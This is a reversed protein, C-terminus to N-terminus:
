RSKKMTLLQDLLRSLNIQSNAISNITMYNPNFHDLKWENYDLWLRCMQIRARLSLGTYPYDCCLPDSYSQSDRVIIQKSELGILYNHFSYFQQVMEQHQDLYKVVIQCKELQVQLTDGTWPYSAILKQIYALNTAPNAASVPTALAYMLSLVLILAITVVLIKSKM